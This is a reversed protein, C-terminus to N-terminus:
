SLVMVGDDQSANICFNCLLPLVYQPLESLMESLMIELQFSNHLYVSYQSLQKPSLWTRQYNHFFFM